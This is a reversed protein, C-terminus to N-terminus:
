RDNQVAMKSLLYEVDEVKLPEDKDSFVETFRRWLSKGKPTSKAAQFLITM